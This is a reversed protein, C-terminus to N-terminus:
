FRYTLQATLVNASNEYKASYAPQIASTNAQSVSSRNEWLYAYAVDITLDANPSYGTGLTLARRNGVPIRVERDSNTTPSPDYAFGTRLVWQKDLQYAAGVTVSLTDHWNLEEGITNFGLQQGLPPVGKNQSELKSLRSWRTWTSGLYGTWRENFHHTFSSNVSEPLTVDMSTKYKGNLGFM